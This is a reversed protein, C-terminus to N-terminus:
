SAAHLNIEKLTLKRKKIQKLMVDYQPCEHDIKNRRLFAETNLLHSDTMDKIKVRIGERTTWVKRDAFRREWEFEDDWADEMAWEAMEGTM